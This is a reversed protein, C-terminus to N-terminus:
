EMAQMKSNNGSDLSAIDNKMKRSSKKIMRGVLARSEPTKQQIM